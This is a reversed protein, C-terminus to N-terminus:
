KPEHPNVPLLRVDDRLSSTGPSGEGERGNRLDFENVGITTAKCLNGHPVHLLHVKGTEIVTAHTGLQIRALCQPLRVKTSRSSRRGAYRGTAGLKTKTWLYFVRSLTVVVIVVVLYAVLEFLMFNPDITISLDILLM